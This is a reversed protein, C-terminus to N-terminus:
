CGGDGHRGTLDFRNGANSGWGVATGLLSQTWPVGWGLCSLLLGAITGPISLINPILKHELDILAIIVLLSFFILGGFCHWSEQLYLAWPLLDWGRLWSLWPIASPFLRVADQCKGRQPYLQSPCLNAQLLTDKATQAAPLPHLHVAAQAVPLDSRQSAASFPATYSPVAGGSLRRCIIVVKPTFTVKIYVM